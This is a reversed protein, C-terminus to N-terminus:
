CFIPILFDGFKAVLFPLKPIFEGRYIALYDNSVVFYMRDLANFTSILFILFFIYFLLKYNCNVFIRSNSTIPKLTDLIYFTLVLVILSFLILRVGAEDWSTKFFYAEHSIGLLILLLRGILFNFFSCLFLFRIVKFGQNISSFIGFSFWLILNIVIFSESNIFFALLSVITMMILLYSFKNKLLRNIM